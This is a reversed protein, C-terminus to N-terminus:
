GEIVKNAIGKVGLLQGIYIICQKFLDHDVEELQSCHIYYEYESFMEEFVEGENQILQLELGMIEFLYYEGGGINLGYRRQDIQWSSQNQTNCNVISRFQDALADLKLDSRLYIKLL